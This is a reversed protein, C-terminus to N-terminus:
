FILGGVIRDFCHLCEFGLAWHVKVMKGYHVLAFIVAAMGNGYRFLGIGDIFWVFLLFGCLGKKKLMKMSNWQIRARHNRNAMIRGDEKAKDRIRCKFGSSISYHLVFAFLLRNSVLVPNATM